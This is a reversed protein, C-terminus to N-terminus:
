PSPCPCSCSIRVGSNLDLATLEGGWVCGTDLAYVNVADAKGQLAAWHGFAIRQHSTKRPHSFWPAFRAPAANTGEKTLLELEGEASCFRMRTFYNTILRWRDVGQLDASWINPQNGYMNSLFHIREESKLVAEVEASYNLADSLTWQPPIGAHVMTWQLKEDHYVLPYGSLWDVLLQCDDAQLLDDLTESKSKHRVGYHRAIFHLDHNGLVIKISDRISYLYRLTALSDSGRNILDGVLWLQDRKPDFQIKKLLTMLSEFCGQIDGIAYTNM